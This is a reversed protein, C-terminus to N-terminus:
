RLLISPNKKVEVVSESVSMHSNQQPVTTFSEMLGSKGVIAASNSVSPQKTAQFTELSINENKMHMSVESALLYTGNDPENSTLETSNTSNNSNSRQCHQLLLQYGRLVASMAQKPPQPDVKEVRMDTFQTVHSPFEPYACHAVYMSPASNRKVDVLIPLSPAKVTRSIDELPEVSLQFLKLFVISYSNYEECCSQSIYM